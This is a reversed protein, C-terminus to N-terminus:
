NGQPEHFEPLKVSKPCSKTADCDRLKFQKDFCLRLEKIIGKKACALKPNAKFASHIANIVDQIRYKKTDSAVIEANELAEQHAWFSGKRNNCSSVLGCRYSPWYKDIDEFLSSIENENFTANSCCSPWGKGEYQPWLGHITFETPSDPRLIYVYKKENITGRCCANTPCCLSRNRCLTAPWQLALVFYDFERQDKGVTIGEATQVRVVIAVVVVFVAAGAAKFSFSTM